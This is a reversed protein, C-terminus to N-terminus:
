VNVCVCVCVCVCVIVRVLKLSEEQVEAANITHQPTCARGLSRQPQVLLAKRVFASMVFSVDMWGHKLVCVCVCMCADSGM